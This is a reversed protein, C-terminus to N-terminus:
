LTDEIVQIAIQRLTAYPNTAGTPMSCAIYDSVRLLCYTLRVQLTHRAATHIGFLLSGYLSLINDTVHDWAAKVDERTANASAYREAVEVARKGPELLHDWITGGDRHPAQRVWTTAILRLVQEPLVGPRDALWLADEHEVWDDMKLVDLITGTWNESAYRTPDICPEFERIMPITLIPLSM